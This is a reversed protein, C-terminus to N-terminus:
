QSLERKRRNIRNKIGSRKVPKPEVADSGGLRHNLTSSPNQLDPM